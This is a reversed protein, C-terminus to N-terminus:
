RVATLEFFPKKEAGTAWSSLTIGPRCSVGYPTKSEKAIGEQATGM